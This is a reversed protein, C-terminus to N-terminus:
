FRRKSIQFHFLYRVISTEVGTSIFIAMGCTATWTVPNFTGMNFIKYILVGPFFEWLFGALPIAVAGVLSSALNMSIDVLLAKKWAMPFVFRLVLLETVLGAAVAAVGREYSALLLAPWVVDALM